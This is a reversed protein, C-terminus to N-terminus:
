FKLFMFQYVLDSYAFVSYFQLTSALFMTSFCFALFLTGQTQKVNQTNQSPEDANQDNDEDVLDVIDDEFQESQTGEEQSTTARNKGFAMRQINLTSSSSLYLSYFIPIRENSQQSTLINISPYKAPIM